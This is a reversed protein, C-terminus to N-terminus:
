RFRIWEVHTNLSVATGGGGARVGTVDVGGEAMGGVGGASGGGATVPPLALTGPM